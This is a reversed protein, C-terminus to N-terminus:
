GLGETHMPTRAGTSGGGQCLRAVADETMSGPEKGYGCTRYATLCLTDVHTAYVLGGAQLVRITPRLKSPAGFWKEIAVVSTEVEARTKWEYTKSGLRGPARMTELGSPLGSGNLVKCHPLLTAAELKLEKLLNPELVRKMDDNTLITECVASMGEAWRSIAVGRVNAKTSCLESRYPQVGNKSKMYTWLEEYSEAAELDSKKGPKLLKAAPLDWPALTGNSRKKDGAQADGGGMSGASSDFDDGLAM